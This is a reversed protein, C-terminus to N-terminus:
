AIGRIEVKMLKNKHGAAVATSCIRFNVKTCLSMEPSHCIM